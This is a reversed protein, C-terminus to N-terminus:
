KRSSVKAARQTFPPGKGNAIERAVGREARDDFDKLNVKEQPGSREWGDWLERIGEIMAIRDACNKGKGRPTRTKSRSYFIEEKIDNKCKEKSPLFSIKVVTM